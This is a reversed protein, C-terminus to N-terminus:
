REAPSENTQPRRGARAAGVHLSHALTTDLQARVQCGVDVRPPTWSSSSAGEQSVRSRSGARARSPRGARAGAARATSAQQRGPFRADGAPQARRGPMTRLPRGVDLRAPARKRCSLPLPEPSVVGAALTRGAWSAAMSSRESGESALMAERRTDSRRCGRHWRGDVLRGGTIAVVPRWDDALVVSIYSLQARGYNEGDRRCGSTWCVVLIQIGRLSLGPYSM